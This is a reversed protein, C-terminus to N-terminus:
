RMWSPDEQAYAKSSFLAFWSALLWAMAACALGVNIVSRRKVEGVGALAILVSFITFGLIKM